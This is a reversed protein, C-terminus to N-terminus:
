LGSCGYPCICYPQCNVSCDQWTNYSAGCSFTTCIYTGIGGCWSVGSPPPGACGNPWLPPVTLPGLVCWDTYTCCIYVMPCPPVSTPIQCCANWTLRPVAGANNCLTVSSCIPGHLGCTPGVFSQQANAEKAFFPLVQAAIGVGALSLLKRTAGSLFSRRTLQGYRKRLVKGLAQDIAAQSSKEPSDTM